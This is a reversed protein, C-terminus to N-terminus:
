DGRRYRLWDFYTKAVLGLAGILLGGVIGVVQWEGPTLGFYVAVTGGGYTAVASAKEIVIRSRHAPQFVFFGGFRTQADFTPPLFDNQKSYM